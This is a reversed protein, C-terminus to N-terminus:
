AHSYNTIILGVQLLHPKKKMLEIGEEGDNTEILHYGARELKVKLTNRIDVDDEIILIKGHASSSNDMISIAM